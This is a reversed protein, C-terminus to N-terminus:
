GNPVGVSAACFFATERFVSQGDKIYHPKEDPKKEPPKEREMLKIEEGDALAEDVTRSPNLYSEDDLRACYNDSLDIAPVEARTKAVTKVFAKALAGITKNGPVVLKLKFTERGKPTYQVIITLKKLTAKAAGPPADLASM